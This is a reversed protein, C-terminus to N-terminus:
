SSGLLLNIFLLLVLKKNNQFQSSDESKMSYIASDSFLNNSLYWIFLINLFFNIIKLNM